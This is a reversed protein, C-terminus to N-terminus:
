RAAAAATHPRISRATRPVAASTCAHSNERRWCTRRRAQAIQTTLGLTAALRLAEAAHPQM